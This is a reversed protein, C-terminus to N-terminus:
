KGKLLSGQHIQGIRNLIENQVNQFVCQNDKAERAKKVKDQIFM